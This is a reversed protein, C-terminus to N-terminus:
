RGLEAFLRLDDGCLGDAGVDVLHLAVERSNVTWPLVRGGRAHVRAVLAADVLPHHPWVDLAGTADMVADLDEPYEEFLLGRRLEPAIRRARAILAHDFSHIACRADSGRIVDAVLSEIGEGKIEVYVMARSGVLDLVQSLSPIAIGPALQVGQLESWPITDIPQGLLVDDVTGSLLRDHHVVVVGDATSHVDLEIADAGRELAREFAPLTNERFERPAGRHAILEAAPRRRDM